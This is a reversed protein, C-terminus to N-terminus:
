PRRMLICRMGEEMFEGGDRAFGHASYFGELDVQANIMISAKGFVREFYLLVEKMLAHGLGRKRFDHHVAIRGIRGESFFEGHYLHRPAFIRAYAVLKDETMGLFHIASRDEGDIEPYLCEQEILFVQERLRLIEYLQDLSLESYPLFFWSIKTM